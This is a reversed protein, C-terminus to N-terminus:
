NSNRPGAGTRSPRPVWGYQLHYSPPTIRSDPLHPHTHHPTTPQEHGHPTQQGDQDQYPLPTERKEPHQEEVQQNKTIIQTSGRDKSGPTDSKTSRHTTQPEALCRRNNTRAMYTLFKQEICLIYAFAFFILVFIIFDMGDSAIAIM